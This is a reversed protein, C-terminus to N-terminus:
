GVLERTDVQVGVEDVTIKILRDMPRSNRLKPVYLMRIVRDSVLDVKIVIVSDALSELYAATRESVLSRDYTVIISKSERNAIKALQKIADQAQKETKLYLDTSLSDLIIMDFNLEELFSFRDSTGYAWSAVEMWGELSGEIESSSQSGGVNAELVPREETGFSLYAVKRGSARAYGGLQKALIKSVSGREEEIVTLGSLANKLIRDLM